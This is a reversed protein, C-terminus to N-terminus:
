GDEDESAAHPLHARREEEPWGHTREHHEVDKGRLAIGICIALGGFLIMLALAGTLAAATSLWVEFIFYAVVGSGLIAILRKRRGLLFALVLLGFFVIKAVGQRWDGGEGTLEQTLIQYGLLGTLAVPTVLRICLEWWGGLHIESVTNVYERLRATRFFYGIALCEVLGVFALGYDSCWRDFVGVWALGGRTAFLLGALFGTACLGATVINRTLFGFRDHLGAVAAEVLSFLSDIGLSLLTVFFLVAVLPPWFRGFDGLKSIALPYTVFALDPGGKVVEGVPVGGEKFALFGLVSFVVFGALFSTACNALSTIFANNTIDGRRRNYSAYAIMIGFGLSLSFFVQGYAALWVKPEKLVEFDPNLYYEIGAAAGPLTLGRIALVILLVVPLPVTIMVVRGVRHVGKHIILFVSLWTAALGAVLPWQLQWIEGETTAQNLVHATFYGEADKAWPLAEDFAYWFSEVLFQWSYAMIIAYYFSIISATGLAFWGVWEFNRNVRRLAAPASGQFMQGVGMELIMLPIGTTVLAIIYPIFFAGGGNAHVIYPFRWVNGLGVASGVAAMIFATRSDWRDRKEPALSTQSM